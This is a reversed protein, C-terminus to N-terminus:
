PVSKSSTGKKFREIWATFRKYNLGRKMYNCDSCCPVVNDRTYGKKSDKRDIGNFFIGETFLWRGQRMCNRPLADCYHCPQQMLQCAEEDTLRWALGRLRANRKYDKLLLRFLSRPPYHVHNGCTRTRALDYGTVIQETGCDCRVHWAVHGSGSHGKTYIKEIVRRLVVRSGFRKGVRDIIPRGRL